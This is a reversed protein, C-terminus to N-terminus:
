PKRAVLVYGLAFRKNRDTHRDLWFCPHVVLWRNLLFAVHKLGPIHWTSCVIVTSLQHGLFCFLGGRPVLELIEFGAQEFLHRLGYHTYRYFDYPEEHLRSLHPVSLIVKGGSRLVRFLEAVVRFPNPVHELVELLLVTDYRDSAIVSSLDQADAQFDIDDIRKEFDVTHYVCVSPGLISRYPADGAGVDLLEGCAHRQAVPLTIAFQCYTAPSFYKRRDTERTDANFARRNRALLGSMVKARIASPVV